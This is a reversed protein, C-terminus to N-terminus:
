KQTRKLVLAGIYQLPERNFLWSLGLYLIVGAGMEMILTTLVPLELLEVSWAGIGMVVSIILSPLVEMWQSFPGYGILRGNPWANIITCIYEDVVKLILMPWIGFPLSLVLIM